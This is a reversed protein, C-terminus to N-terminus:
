MGGIRRHNVNMIRCTLVHFDRVLRECARPIDGLVIEFEFIQSYM